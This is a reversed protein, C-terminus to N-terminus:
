GAVPATEPETGTIDLVQGDLAAQVVPLARFREWAADDPFSAEFVVGWRHSHWAWDLAGNTVASETLTERYADRWNEASFEGHFVEISWWKAM